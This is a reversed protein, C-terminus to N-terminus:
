AVRRYRGIKYLDRWHVAARDASVAIFEAAIFSPREFGHLAVQAEAPYVDCHPWEVEAVTTVRSRKTMHARWTLQWRPVNADGTLKWAELINDELMHKFLIWEVGHSSYDGIWLGDYPSRPKPGCLLMDLKAFCMFNSYQPCDLQFSDARYAKNDLSSKFVPTPLAPPSEFVDSFEPPLDSDTTTTAHASTTILREAQGDEIWFIQRARAAEKEQFGAPRIIKATFLDAIDENEGAAKSAAGSSLRTVPRGAEQDWYIDFFHAKRFAPSLVGVHIHPAVSFFTNVRAQTNIVKIHYCTICGRQSDYELSCMAGRVELDSSWLGLIWGYPGIIKQYLERYSGYQPGPSQISAPVLGQWLADVNCLTQLQKCTMSAHALSSPKIDRLLSLIYLLIESPLSLLTLSNDEDM